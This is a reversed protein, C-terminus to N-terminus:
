DGALRPVGIEVRLSAAEESLAAAEDPAGSTTAVDALGELAGATGARHGIRRCLELATRFASRADDSRGARLAIEGALCLASAEGERYGVGQYLALADAVLRGAEADDGWRFELSALVDLALGRAVDEGVYDAHAVSRLAVLRAADPEQRDRHLRALQAEVLAANWVDGGALSAEVADEYRQQARDFRGRAWDVTALMALADGEWRRARGPEALALQESALRVTQALDARGVHLLAGASLLPMRQDPRDPGVAALATHVWHLGEDRTGRLDWYHWLCGVLQAGREPDVDFWWALASRLNDRETHLRELWPGSGAGFLRPQAEKALALYHGAHRDAVIARSRTDLLGGAYARVSELLRYRTGGDAQDDLHVMSSAVLRALPLAVDSPGGCVARVAALDFGAPFVALRAFLAREATPLLDYGWALTTALSRHRLDAARSASELLAFRDDLRDALEALPLVAARAAALEIALPLGDLRRCVEGVLAANAATVSFGPRIAVARDAFLRVAESEAMREWSEDAAAARLPRVPHVREGPVGLPERSTALVRLGAAGALLIQVLEACASVLHECNDLVVVAPRFSLAAAVTRALAHGPEARVGLADALTEVVLASTSLPALEVLHVDVDSLRRGVELALRTKGVGGPGTLTVLRNSGVLASLEDLEGEPGVFSGLPAPLVTGGPRAPHLRQDHRLVALELGRLREGPEVGLEGVLTARLRRYAALADAQRGGRYLAVILHACLEERLPHAAALEELRAVVTDHRGLRLEADAHLEYCQVRLEDWRAAAARAFPEEVGALAPGRWEALAEALLSSARHPSTALLRRGADLKREFRAADVREPAVDLVYGGDRTVLVHPAVADLARRIAAVAGHVMTAATPPPPDPWLMDVLREVTLSTGAHVLLAALLARRRSGGVPLPVGAPDLVTVPGLLHFTARGHTAV